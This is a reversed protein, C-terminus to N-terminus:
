LQLQLDADDDREDGDDARFVCLEPNYGGLDAPLDRGDADAVVASWIIMKDRTPPAFSRLRPPM